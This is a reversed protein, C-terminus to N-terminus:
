GKTLFEDLNMLLNALNTWAAHDAADLADDRPAEGVSLLELAAEDRGAYHDREGALLDVLVELEEPEPHRSTMSRFGWVLAAEDGQEEAHRMLREGLFRSAEVFQIDNMTVLAQLPTNTRERRVTCAERSPADFTTMSPPPATRKWFSYLTRRYLKEGHDQVFDKTNSRTYGVAEWIGEPQYPRVPEGGVEEVLLGSTFLASDRISEGDLRYRAGRAFLRNEPDREILEPTTRSSRRYAESLVLQRVLRKIDWGGEIFDVALWDLLEPHTPPEGQSGFDESTRVLGTGFFQQWFRNVTVRATMPHAPDLLWEAFGLRDSRLEEGFPPLASPTGPFVEDEKQDYEGRALMYTPRRQAREAAVLTTVMAADLDMREANIQDREGRLERGRPWVQERWHDALLDHQRDTRADPATGLALEVDFPESGGGADRLEFAYGSLGGFNVVKMVVLNAGPDLDVEVLDQAAVAGRVINNSHVLRGNVWIKVADDSGIAFIARRASPSHITRALYHAAYDGAPLIIATGDVDGSRPTWELTSAELSTIGDAGQDETFARGGDGVIVPGHYLWGDGVAPARAPDTSASVKFRGISHSAYPSLFHMRVRLVREDPLAEGGISREPVFLASQAKSGAPGDLIAWGQAPDLSGDVAETIPWNPQDHTSRAGAVPVDVFDESGTESAVALELETLVFNGNATGGGPGGYPLSPDELCDLRIATFPESGDLPLLIDVVDTAAIPLAQLWSGDPQRQHVAGERSSISLPEVPSWDRLRTDTRSVVWAELQSRIGADDDALATEVRQLELALEEARRNQLETGVKVVPPTDAVNGDMAAESTNNFFALLEYFERRSIPDFKHDHCAACGVTLGMWITGATETRDVAYKLVYEESIAGGESTTVHARIFGSAIRDEITADPLLDGALQRRTFDDFPENRNFAEVVWDRYKWMTRLNDLHLGHTDGYRAADLWYRAMHEGYRESDLLRDVAQEYADPADDSLFADLEEVTPPLGTLDYTIRRLQRERTARPSVPLDEEVLRDEIFADIPHTDARTDTPPDHLVPPIFSWHPEYEAGQPIWRELLELEGPTLPKRIIAPPMVSDPDQDHVRKLLESGTPDGPIIVGGLEVAGERSDLRLGAKRAASDPGHCQYCHDSLIPRIDRNFRVEDDGSVAGTLLLAAVTTAFRM